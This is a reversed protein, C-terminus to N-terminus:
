SPRGFMNPEFTGYIHVNQEKMFARLKALREGMQPREDVKADRVPLAGHQLMM